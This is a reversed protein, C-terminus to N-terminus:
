CKLIVGKGQETKSPTKRCVETAHGYKKCVECITPKLDYSVKHEVVNRKM